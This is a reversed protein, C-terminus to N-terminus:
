PSNSFRFTFNNSYGSLGLDYFGSIKDFSFVEFFGSPSKIIGVSRIPVLASTVLVPCPFRM